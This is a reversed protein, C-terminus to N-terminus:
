DFRLSETIFGHNEAECVIMLIIRRFYIGKKDGRFTLTGDPALELAGIIYKDTEKTAKTFITEAIVKALTELRKPTEEKFKVTTM